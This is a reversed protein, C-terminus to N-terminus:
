LLLGYLHHGLAGLATTLAYGALVLGTRRPKPKRHSAPRPPWDSRRRGSRRPLPPTPKQERRPRPIRVPESPPGDGPDPAPAPTKRPRPEPPEVPEAELTVNDMWAPLEGHILRRRVRPDDPM